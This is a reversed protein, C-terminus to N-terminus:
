LLAHCYYVVQTTGHPLCCFVADVNSFDADKIAVLNPLDQMDFSLWCLRVIKILLIVVIHGLFELLFLHVVLLNLRNKIHWPYFFSLDNRGKLKKFFCTYAIEPVLSCPDLFFRVQTILHPFVSGFQESAKRDATM